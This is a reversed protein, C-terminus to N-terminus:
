SYKIRLKALQNHFVTWSIHAKYAEKAPMKLECVRKYIKRWDGDKFKFVVPETKKSAYMSYNM